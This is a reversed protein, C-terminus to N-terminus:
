YEGNWPQFDARSYKKDSYTALVDNAEAVQECYSYHKCFKSCADLTVVGNVCKICRFVCDFYGKKDIISLVM